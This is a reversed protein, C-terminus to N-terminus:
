RGAACGAAMWLLLLSSLWKALCPLECAHIRGRAVRVICRGVLVSCCTFHMFFHVALAGTTVMLADSGLASGSSDDFDGQLFQILFRKIDQWEEDTAQCVSIRYQGPSLKPDHMIETVASTTAYVSDDEASAASPLLDVNLIANALCTKGSGVKGLLCIRPRANIHSKTAEPLYNVAQNRLDENVKLDTIYIYLHDMLDPIRPRLGVILCNPPM